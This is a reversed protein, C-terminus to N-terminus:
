VKKNLNNELLYTIKQEVTLDKKYVKYDLLTNLVRSINLDVVFGFKKQGSNIKDNESNNMSETMCRYMMQILKDCSITDNFLFVIDVFPLTIGLTLQNGALLILGDKGEEKAKLEWNKIEEKIEKVNYEKKSNVIRIEYKQLTRNKLMRDKLHESVKSIPMHIGFPLFWLQTTFDAHNLKTRSDYKICKQKIRGFISLDRQPYDIEKNSGTIYALV